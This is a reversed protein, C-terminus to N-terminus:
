LASNSPFPIEVWTMMQKLLWSVSLGLYICISNVLLKTARLNDITTKIHLSTVLFKTATLNDVTTEIHLPIVSPIGSWDYFTLLRSVQCITPVALYNPIWSHLIFLRYSYLMLRYSYFLNVHITVTCLVLHHYSFRMSENHQFHTLCHSAQMHFFQTSNM